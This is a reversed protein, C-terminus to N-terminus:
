TAVKAGYYYGQDSQEIRVIIAEDLFPIKAKSDSSKIKVVEHFRLRGNSKFGLGAESVDLTEGPYEEGDDSTVIIKSNMVARDDTRISNKSVQHEMSAQLSRIKTDILAKIEAKKMKGDPFNIGISDQIERMAKAQLSLSGVSLNLEDATTFRKILAKLEEKFMKFTAIVIAPWIIVGIFSVFSNEAM